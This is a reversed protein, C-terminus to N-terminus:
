PATKETTYIWRPNAFTMKINIKGDEGMVVDSTIGDHSLWASDPVEPPIGSMKAKRALKASMGTFMNPVLAQKVNDLVGEFFKPAHNAAIEQLAKELFESFTEQACGVLGIQNRLQNVQEPDLSM